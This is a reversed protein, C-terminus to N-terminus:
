LIVQQEADKDSQAPHRRQQPLQQRQAFIHYTSQTHKKTNKEIHKQKVVNNRKKTEPLNEVDIDSSGSYQRKDCPRRRSKPWGRM